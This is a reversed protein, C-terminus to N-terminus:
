GLACMNPAQPCVEGVGRQRTTCRVRLLLALPWPSPETLVVFGADESYGCALAKPLNSRRSLVRM